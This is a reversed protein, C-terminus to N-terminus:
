FFTPCSHNKIVAALNAAATMPQLCRFWGCLVGSPSRLNPHATGCALPGTALSPLSYVLGPTGLLGPRTAELPLREDHHVVARGGAALSATIFAGHARLWDTRTRHCIRACIEQTHGAHSDCFGARHGNRSQRGFSRLAIRQRERMARLIDIREDLGCAGHMPVRRSRASISHFISIINRRFQTGTVRPCRAATL